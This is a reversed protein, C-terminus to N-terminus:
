KGLLRMTRDRMRWWAMEVPQWLLYRAEIRWPHHKWRGERWFGKSHRWHLPILRM